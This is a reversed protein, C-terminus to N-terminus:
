KLVSVISPPSSGFPSYAVVKVTHTGSPVPLSVKLCKCSPDVPPPPIDMVVHDDVSIRYGTPAVAPADWELKVTRAPRCAVLAVPLVLAAMFRAASNSIIM